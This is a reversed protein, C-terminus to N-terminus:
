NGDPNIQRLFRSRKRLYHVLNDPDSALPHIFPAIRRAYFRPLPEGARHMEVLEYFKKERYSSARIETWALNLVGGYLAGIGAVVMMTVGMSNGEKVWAPQNESRENIFHAVSFLVASSGLAIYSLHRNKRIDQRKVLFLFALARTTDDYAAQLIRDSARLVITDTLPQARVVTHMVLLGTVVGITSIRFM